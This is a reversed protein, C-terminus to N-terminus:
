FYCVSQLELLEKVFLHLEMIFRKTHIYKVSSMNLKLYANSDFDNHM